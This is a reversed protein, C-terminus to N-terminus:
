KDRKLMVNFFFPNVVGCQDDNLWVEVLITKQVNHFWTSFVIISYSKKKKQKPAQPINNKDLDM